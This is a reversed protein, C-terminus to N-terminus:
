PPNRDPRAARAARAVPRPPRLHGGPGSYSCFAVPPHILPTRHSPFPIHASRNGSKTHHPRRPAGAALGPSGTPPARARKARPPLEQHMVVAPQTPTTLPHQGADPARPTTFCSTKRTFIELLSEPKRAPGGEHSTSTDGRLLARYRCDFLHTPSNCSRAHSRTAQRPQKPGDRRAPVHHAPASTSILVPFGRSTCCLQDIARRCGTRIGSHSYIPTLAAGRPACHIQICCSSAANPLPICYSM